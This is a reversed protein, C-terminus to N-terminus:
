IKKIIKKYIDIYKKNKLGFLSMFSWRIIQLFCKFKILRKLSRQKKEPYHKKFYYILSETESIVAKELNKEASKRLHHITFVNPFFFIKFGMKYARYCWDVEELYLFFNEDLLGVKNIAEKKLMLCSGGAWDVRHIKKFKHRTFINYPIVRGKPILKYLGLNQFFETIISPFNGFSPQISGDTNKILCGIAGCKEKKDIFDLMCSITDPNVVTDPNLLLIHSGQSAKIGQNVAFAFGLNEKNVILKLDQFYRKIYDITGDQSNNDVIIVESSLNSVAKFISSLCNGIYNRSNYTVVIISLDKM